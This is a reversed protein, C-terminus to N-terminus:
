ISSEDPSSHLESSIPVPNATQNSQLAYSSPHEQSDNEVGQARCLKFLWYSLLMLLDICLLIVLPLRLKADLQLCPNLQFM